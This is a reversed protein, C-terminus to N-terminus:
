GPPRLHPALFSWAAPLIAPLSAVLEHGDDVEVLTADRTRAAWARSTAVDVVDDHVGHAIWTPVSVAPQGGDAADLALVDEAFGFDVRAPRREAHDDIALWGTAQWAHWAHEGLRARWRPLLNFAPALLVLARVAPSREAVRAACLGGLSSGVLVAPGRTGIRDLVHDIMHSLRLHELSPIRLDLREVAVGRAAFYRAFAMGKASGPGSAFGHLYLCRM